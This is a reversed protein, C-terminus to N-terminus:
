VNDSLCVAPQTGQSSVGARDKNLALVVEMQKERM